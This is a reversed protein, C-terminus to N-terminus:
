SAWFEKERLDVLAVGARVGDERRGHGGLTLAKHMVLGRGGRRVVIVDLVKRTVDAVDEAVLEALTEREVAHSCDKCHQGGRRRRRRRICLM